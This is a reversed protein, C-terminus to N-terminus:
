IELSVTESHDNSLQYVKWCTDAMNEATLENGLELAQQNEFDYLTLSKDDEIYFCVDDDEHRMVLTKPENETLTKLAEFFTMYKDTLFYYKM